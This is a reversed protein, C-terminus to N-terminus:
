LGVAFFPLIFNQLAWKWFKELCNCPSSTSRWPPV